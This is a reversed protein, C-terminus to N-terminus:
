DQFYFENIYRLDKFQVYSTALSVGLSGYIALLCWHIKNTDSYPFITDEQTKHAMVRKYAVLFRNNKM